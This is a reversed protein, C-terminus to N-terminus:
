CTLGLANNNFRISTTNNVIAESEESLAYSFITLNASTIKCTPLQQLPDFALSGPRPIAQGAESFFTFGSNNGIRNIEIRETSATNTGSLLSAELQECPVNGPVFVSSIKHILASYGTNIEDPVIKYTHLECRNEMRYTFTLTSKDAIYVKEANRSNITFNNLSTQIKAQLTTNLQNKGTSDLTGLIVTVVAISIVMTIALASVLEVLTFGKNNRKIM